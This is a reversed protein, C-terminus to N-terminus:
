WRLRRFRGFVEILTSRDCRPGLLALFLALFGAGFLVKAMTILQPVDELDAIMWSANMWLWLNVSALVGYESLTRETYRFALLNSVVTPAVLLEAAGVAQFMWLGDMAFWLASGVSEFLERKERTELHATWAPLWRLRRDAVNSDQAGRVHAHSGIAEQLGIPINTDM